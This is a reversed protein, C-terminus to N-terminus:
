AGRGNALMRDFAALVQEHEATVRLNFTQAYEEFTGCVSGSARELGELAGRSLAALDAFAPDGEFLFRLEMLRWLCRCFRTLANRMLRKSLEDDGMLPASYPLTHLADGDTEGNLAHIWQDVQRDNPLGAVSVVRQALPPKRMTGRLAQIGHKHEAPRGTLLLLSKAVMEAADASAAITANHGFRVKGDTRTGAALVGMKLVQTELSDYAGRVFVGLGDRNISMRASWSKQDVLGTDGGLLVGSNAVDHEFTIAEGSLRGVFADKRAFITQAQLDPFYANRLAASDDAELEGVLYFDADSDPRATGKARSGFLILADTRERRQEYWRLAPEVDLDVVDRSTEITRM